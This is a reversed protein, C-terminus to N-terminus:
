FDTAFAFNEYRIYWVTVLVILHELLANQRCAARLWQTIERAGPFIGGVLSYIHLSGYSCICIYCLIAYRVDIPPFPLKIGWHIRSPHPLLPHIPPPTSECLFLPPPSIPHPTQPPTVPFPFVM